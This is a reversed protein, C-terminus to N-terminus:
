RFEVRAQEPVFQPRHGPRLRWDPTLVTSMHRRLRRIGATGPIGQSLVSEVADLQYPTNDHAFLPVTTPASTLLDQIRRAADLQHVTDTGGITMQRVQDVALHPLTYLTDGTFLANGDDMRLLVCMHGPSHGPTPLLIVSGDGFHDQSEPFAHFAGSDFRPFTLKDKVLDFSYPYLVGHDWDRRDLTVTAQPLHRLGGAHDDHVHTLFVTTVDKVDYGLRALRVRLDQETTMTYEDRDSLLRSVMANHNYYGDHDHAQEWHIGADIMMVGHRPHDVLYAYVPVTITAKDLLTRLYGNPGEWGDLGGYFQGFTVVTDGTHPPFVRVAGDTMRQRGGPARIAEEREKGARAPQNQRHREVWGASLGSLAGLAVGVGGLVFVRRSRSAAPKAVDRRGRSGAVMAGALSAAAALGLLVPIDAIYFVVAFYLGLTGLGAPVGLFWGVRARALRRGYVGPWLLGIVLGLLLLGYVVLVPAAVDKLRLVVLWAAMVALALALLLIKGLTKMM